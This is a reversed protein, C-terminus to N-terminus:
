SCVVPMVSLCQFSLYLSFKFIICSTFSVVLKKLALLEEMPIVSVVLSFVNVYQIYVLVDIVYWTNCGDTSNFSQGQNYKKGSYTCQNM